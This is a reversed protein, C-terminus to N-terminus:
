IYVLEMLEKQDQMHFHVQLCFDYLHLKDHSGVSTATNSLAKHQVNVIKTVEQELYMYNTAHVTISHTQQCIFCKKM